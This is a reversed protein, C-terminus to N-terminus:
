VSQIKSEIYEKIVLMNVDETIKLTHKEKINKENISVSSDLKFAGIQKRRTVSKTPFVPICKAGSKYSSEQFNEFITLYICNPSIDVFIMFEANWPKEGLEHQFNSATSGQHATKIEVTRDFISGDGNGGGTQKTKTGDVNALIGCNDCLNQIYKEGVIGANISQLKVLDKYKSDKWIDAKEEKIKQIDILDIFLNHPTIPTKKMSVSLSM